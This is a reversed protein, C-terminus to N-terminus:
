MSISQIEFITNNFYVNGDITSDNLRISSSVITVNESLGLWEIEFSTREVQRKPLDLKSLDLDGKIIVHDYEVPLGKEIKDLIEQAPVVRM